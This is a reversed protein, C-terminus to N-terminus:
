LELEGMRLLEVVAQSRGKGRAKANRKLHHTTIAFSLQLYVKYSYEHPILAKGNRWPEEVLAQAFRKDDLNAHETVIIQMNPSFKECFDILTDFLRKVAIRDADDLENTNGEM